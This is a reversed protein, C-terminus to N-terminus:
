TSTSTRQKIAEYISLFFYIFPLILKFLPLHYARHFIIAYNHQIYYIYFSEFNPKPNAYLLVYNHQEVFENWRKGGSCKAIYGPHSFNRFVVCVNRDFLSLITNMKKNLHISLICKFLVQVWYRNIVSIINLDSERQKKLEEVQDKLKEEEVKLEELREGLKKNQFKLVKLNM